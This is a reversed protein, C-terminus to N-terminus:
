AELMWRLTDRLPRRALPGVFHHLLQTSGSLAHVEHERVFCPNTRIEMTHGTLEELEDIVERLPTAIGSCLNVARGFAAECGLLRSYLQCIDRVDSFDRSIATNGLEIVTERRKFHDVIKPILFSCSQGVGTYNFPRVITIPYRSGFMGVLFEVAAKTIGYDNAPNIPLDETLVSQGRRGYVNSSSAVIVHKLQERGNALESLFIRTGVVNNLYLEEVDDHAPSAIGALHIVYDPQVDSLVARVAMSDRIDARHVTGAIGGNDVDHTRAIGHVVFGQGTLAEALYSGSFGLIGTLLVRSSEAM